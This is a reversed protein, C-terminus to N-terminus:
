SLLSARLGVPFLGWTRRHRWCDATLYLRFVTWYLRFVTLYLRFITLYSRFVTLYPHFVTLYWRDGLRNIKQVGAGLTAKVQFFNFRARIKMSCRNFFFYKKFLCIWFCFYINKFLHTDLYLKITSRCIKHDVLILNKSFKLFHFKTHTHM